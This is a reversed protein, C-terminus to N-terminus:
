RWDMTVVEIPDAIGKVEVTRPESVTWLSGASEVTSVSAVIEGGQALAGVRAALHIGRGQYDEGKKTTETEHLGIRVGPAFGHLRRHDGLARQIAVACEVASSPTEFAVVFGDGVQKVEEGEHEAFLMRLAEDHWRLLDEWASDGMAEVLNTSKVIDTFMFTKTTRVGAVSEQPLLRADPLAGLRIFTSRAARFEMAAAEPDGQAAYIKGLLVHARAVEYPIQVDKWLRQSNAASREAEPFDGEQLQLSGRAWAASALLATSGFKQAVADMEDAATRATDLDSAALAIEVQSPLMHARDLSAASEDALARRISAAAADVKGASLLGLALGPQPNKGLEYAQNFSENAGSLDGQKLRVMGIEYFAWGVAFMFYDKLEVSALKAQKEAETWDGKLRIIEARHVRCLGPFGHVAQRECWRSAAETWDSARRYDALNACAGITCCYVIGTYRNSLEGAVAAMTAEDLLKLGDEVDGRKILAIAENQIGLVELDRDGFKQGAEVVKKGLAIAEDFQGTELLMTAQVEYLWGHDVSDPEGELLQSARSMWGMAMTESNKGLHDWFLLLAVRAAQGKLGAAILDAFAEERTHLAREPKGIWWASDALQMLDTTDLKGIRQAGDLNDFAGQWENRGAAARGAELLDEFPSETKM